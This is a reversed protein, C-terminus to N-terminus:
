NPFISVWILGNECDNKGPKKGHSPQGPIPIATAAFRREGTRYQEPFGLNSKVGTFAPVIQQNLQNVRPFGDVQLERSCCTMVPLLERSRLTAFFVLFL